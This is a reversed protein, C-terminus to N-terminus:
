QCWCFKWYSGLLSTWQPSRNFSAQNWSDPSRPCLCLCLPQPVAEQNAGRVHHMAQHHEVLQDLTARMPYPLGPVMDYMTCLACLQLGGAMTAEMILTILPAAAGLIERKM